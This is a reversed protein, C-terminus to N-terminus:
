SHVGDHFLSHHDHVTLIVFNDILHAHQKLLLALRVKQGLVMTSLM